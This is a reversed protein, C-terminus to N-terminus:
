KKIRKIAMGNKNTYITELYTNGDRVVKERYAEPYFIQYYRHNGSFEVIIHAYMAKSELKGERSLQWFVRGTIGQSEM